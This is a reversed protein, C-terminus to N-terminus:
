LWDKTTILGIHDAGAGKGIDLVRAVTSFDLNDDAKICMVKDARVSFITSLRSGLDNISVNDQNIKYSLLGDRARIIQVVIPTDPIQVPNVSRQPLVVALGHPTAPAIVMFIILLVLLVDILPTVNIDGRLQGSVYGNEIAM